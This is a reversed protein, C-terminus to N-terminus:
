PPKFPFILSSSVQAPVSFFFVSDSFGKARTDSDHPPPVLPYLKPKTFFLKPYVGCLEKSRVLPLLERM